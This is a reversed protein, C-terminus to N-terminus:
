FVKKSIELFSKLRAEVRERGLTALLRYFGPGVSQGSVVFRVLHIYEGSKRHFEQTLRGVLEELSEEDFTEMGELGKLFEEIREL